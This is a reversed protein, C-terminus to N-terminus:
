RGDPNGYRKEGEIAEAIDMRAQYLIEKADSHDKDPTWSVYRRVLYDRSNCLFALAEAYTEPMACKPSGVTAQVEKKRFLKM